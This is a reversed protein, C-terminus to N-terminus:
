VVGCLWLVVYAGLVYPALAWAVMFCVMVAGSLLEIFGRM